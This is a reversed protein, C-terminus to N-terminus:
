AALPASDVVEWRYVRDDRSLRILQAQDVRVTVSPVTRLRDLRERVEDVPANAASYAVTVHPRFGDASEPVRDPGWVDAIAERIASRVQEVPTWPTILLGIGEADPDVPGLALDFPALQRCRDRAARVIAAVDDDAVEDAFGIGQMTLHLGDLPVLDLAPVNLDVQLKRVLDHLATAHDFTLHWTYFSRGVVWGPRWYWHETLRSLQQFAQWREDLSRQEPTVV